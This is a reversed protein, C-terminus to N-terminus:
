RGGGHAFTVTAGLTPGDVPRSMVAKRLEGRWVPDHAYRAIAGALRQPDLRYSLPRLRLVHGMRALYSSHHGVDVAYSEIPDRTLVDVMIQGEHAYPIAQEIADWPIVLPWPYQSLHLGDAHLALQDDRHHVVWLGTAVGATLVLVALSGYTTGFEPSAVVGAMGVLLFALTMLRGLTMRRRATSGMRPGDEAVTRARIRRNSGWRGWAWLAALGFIASSAAGQRWAEPEFGFIFLGSASLGTCGMAMLLQRTHWYM